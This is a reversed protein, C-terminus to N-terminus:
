QEVQGRGRLRIKRIKRNVEINIEYLMQKDDDSLLYMCINISKSNDVIIRSNTKPKKAAKISETTPPPPSIESGASM